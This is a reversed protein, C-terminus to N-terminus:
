KKTKKPKWIGCLYKGYHQKKAKAQRLKLECGQNHIEGLSYWNFVLICKDYKSIKSNQINLIAEM